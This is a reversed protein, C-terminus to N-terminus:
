KWETSLTPSVCHSHEFTLFAFDIVNTTREHWPTFNPRFMEMECERPAALSNRGGSTNENSEQGDFLFKPHKDIPTHIPWSRTLAFRSLRHHHLISKVNNRETRLSITDFHITWQKAYQKKTTTTTKWLTFFSLFWCRFAIQKQLIWSECYLENLRLYIFNTWKNKSQRSKQTVLRLRRPVSNLKSNMQPLKGHTVRKMQKATRWELSPICHVRM